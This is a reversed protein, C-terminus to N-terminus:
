FRLAEVGPFPVTARRSPRSSSSARAHTDAEAPADFTLEARRGPHFDLTSEPVCETM